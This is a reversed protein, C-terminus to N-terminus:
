SVGKGFRAPCEGGVSAVARVEAVTLEADMDPLSEEEGAEWRCLWGRELPLQRSALPSIPAPRHRLFPALEPLAEIIRLRAEEIRRGVTRTDVDLLEAIQLDRLGELRLVAVILEEPQLLALVEAFTDQEVLRELPDPSIM